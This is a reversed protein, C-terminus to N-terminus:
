TPLAAINWPYLVTIPWHTKSLSVVRCGLHPDFAPGKSKSNTPRGSPRPNGNIRLSTSDLELAMNMHLM